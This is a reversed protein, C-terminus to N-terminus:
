TLQQVTLPTILSNATAQIALSVFIIGVGQIFGATKDLMKLAVFFAACALVFGGIGPILNTTLIPIFTLVTVGLLGIDLKLLKVGAFIGAFQLLLSLPLLM